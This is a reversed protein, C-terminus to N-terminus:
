VFQFDNADLTPVTHVTIAFGDAFWTSGVKTFDSFSDIGSSTAIQIKDEGRKFDWIVDPTDIPSDAKTNFV